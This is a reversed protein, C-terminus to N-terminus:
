CPSTLVFARSGPHREVVARCLGVFRDSTLGQKAANAEYTTWQLNEIATTGGRSIPLIHDLAVTKRGRGDMPLGSLACRGHQHKWLGWLVIPPLRVGTRSKLHKAFRVFFHAGERQVRRVRGPGRHYRLSM